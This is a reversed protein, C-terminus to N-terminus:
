IESSGTFSSDFRFGQFMSMFDRPHSERPSIERTRPTLKFTVRKGGSSGAGSLKGPAGAGMGRSLPDSRYQPHQPGVESFYRFDFGTDYSSTKKLISKKSSRLMNTNTSPTYKMETAQADEGLSSHTADSHLSYGARPSAVPSLDSAHQAGDSTLFASSRTDAQLDTKYTYSNPTTQADTKYTYSSPPQQTDTKYMYSSPSFPTPTPRGRTGYLWYMSSASGQSRLSGSSQFHLTDGLLSSGPDSSITTRQSSASDVHDSLSRPITSYSSSTASSAALGTGALGTGALGTGALGTGALGTGALGTGPLGAISSTPVSNPTPPPQSPPHPEHRWPYLPKQAVDRMGYRNLTTDSTFTNSRQGLSFPAKSDTLPSQQAMSLLTQSREFAPLKPALNSSRSELVSEYSDKQPTSLGDSYSVRKQGNEQPPIRKIDVTMAQNLEGMEPSHIPTKSDKWSPKAEEEEQMIMDYQSTIPTLIRGAGFKNALSSFKEKPDPVAHGMMAAVTNTKMTSYKDNASPVTGLVRMSGRSPLGGTGGGTMPRSGPPAPGFWAGYQSNSTGSLPAHPVVVSGYSGMNASTNYQWSASM